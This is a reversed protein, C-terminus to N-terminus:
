KTKSQWGRSGVSHSQSSSLMFITPEGKEVVWGGWKKQFGEVDQSHVQSFTEQRDDKTAFSYLFTLKTYTVSPLFFVYEFTCLKGEENRYAAFGIIAVGMQQQMKKLFTEVAVGSKKSAARCYLNACSISLSPMNVSVEEESGRTSRGQEV